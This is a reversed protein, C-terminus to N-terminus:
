FFLHRERRPKLPQNAPELASMAVSASLGSCVSLLSLPLPQSWAQSGMDVEEGCMWARFKDFPSDASSYLVGIIWDGEFSLLSKPSVLDFRCSLTLALTM